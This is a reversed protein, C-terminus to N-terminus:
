EQQKPVRLRKRRTSKRGDGKADALYSRRNRLWAWVLTWATKIGIARIALLVPRNSNQECSCTRVGAKPCYHITIWSVEVVTWDSSMRRRYDIGPLILGVFSEKVTEMVSLVQGKFPFCRMTTQCIRRYLNKGLSWVPFKRCGRM